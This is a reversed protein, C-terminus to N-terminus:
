ANISKGPCSTKAVPRSIMSWRVFAALMFAIGAVLLVRKELNVEYAIDNRHIYFTWYSAMVAIVARISPNQLKTSLTTIYIIIVFALIFLMLLPWGGASWMEAWINNAMGYDIEPFLDKQYLDNFSVAKLGLQPAFLILQYVLGKLHDLGVSYNSQTVANLTSQVIFPESNVFMARFISTDSTGRFVSILLDMDGIKVAYAIQKYLFLFIGMLGVVIGQKWYHLLFRTKGKKSLWLTFIGILSIALSTRFGIFVDFMILLFFITLLSWKKYEFSMTCGIMTATYFLIHYRNLEGLMSQKDSYFLASGTTILMLVLGAVALFLTAYLISCNAPVDNVPKESVFLDKIVAGFFIM